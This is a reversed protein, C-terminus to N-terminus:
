LTEQPNEHPFNSDYDLFAPLEKLPIEAIPTSPNNALLLSKFYEKGEEDDRIGFEQVTKVKEKYDFFTM